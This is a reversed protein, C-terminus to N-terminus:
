LPAPLDVSILSSIRNYSGHLPRISYLPMWAAFIIDITIAAPDAGYELVIANKGCRYRFINEASLKFLGIPRTDKVRQVTCGKVPFKRLKIAHNIRHQSTFKIFVTRIQGASLCLLNGNGTHKGAVVIYYDHVLRGSCQIRDRLILKVLLNHLKRRIFRNDKDGVAQRSCTMGVADIHKFVTTNSLLATM